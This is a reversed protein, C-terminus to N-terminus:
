GNAPKQYVAVYDVSMIGGSTPSTAVSDCGCVGNPYGGGISLNLILLFGHDIAKAWAASGVKAQDVKFRVVGDVLFRLQEAGPNTRDIVASYSHYGTLCGDCAMLDSTLGYPENCPGGDVTGCHLTQAVKSLGNVNEMIDIEGLAPWDDVSGSADAGLAWFAPWYGTAKEPNPQKISATIMMQGGDPAAFDKRKTVVRGSTWAGKSDRIAKIALNGSGDHYV